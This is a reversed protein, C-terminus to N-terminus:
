DQRLEQWSVRGAAGSGNKITRDELDADDDVVYQKDDLFKSDGSLNSRIGSIHEDDQDIDEDNDTDFLRESPPHGNEIRVAMLWGDFSGDCSSGGVPVFTNFYVIDGRAWAPYLVREGSDTLDMYWGYVPNNGSYDVANTTPIRRNSNTNANSDNVSQEVLDSRTLLSDGKDWVAYFSQTNTSSKDALELFKGSGFLVMLNPENGNQNTTDTEVSPHRVVEPQTLIAQPNNSADRATFLPQPTANNGNGSRHAIRWKNMNGKLEFAWLNGYLDGAYARDAVGDGDLDVVTPTGMGNPTSTNGVGTMLKKYDANGSDTWSGDIGGDLSVIFLGSEGSGTNNYGNGFIAHWSCNGVDKGLCAITPVSHTYGLDSDDNSTFEWLVLSAANLESFQTPDTIDLAYYGRGGNGLGGLLVTKWSRANSNGMIYADSVVPPLDVYYKHQYNPDTLYHLGQDAQDSYLAAPIYALKEQGQMNFGHLMGDNAGAYVMPTRGSNSTKFAGYGAHPWDLEPAGVYLPGGHIIDGLHSERPRFNYAVNSNREPDNADSGRLYDIRAVAIAQTDEGYRLDALASASLEQNSYRFAVGNGSTENYTIVVRAAYDFSNADLATSARWNVGGVSGDTNDLDWALLDGTWLGSTYETTFALTDARLYQSSFSVGGASGTKQTISATADLIRDKLTESTEAFFYKGGGKTAASYMLTSEAVSEDAFGVVYTRMSHKLQTLDPRLDVEYMAATVDDFIEGGNLYDDLYNSVDDDVSPEGDTIVVLNNTRCWLDVPATTPMPAATYSHAFVNSKNVDIQNGQGEHLRLQGSYGKSFYHGIDRVSEGLPTGGWPSASSVGARLSTIHATTMDDVPVLINAGDYRDENRCVFRGCVKERRNYFVALGVRTETLDDLVSDIVDKATDMRSDGYSWNLCRWRRFLIGKWGWQNCVKTKTDMSKSNDLLFMINPKADAGSELPHDSLALPAAHTTQTFIFLILLGFLMGKHKPYLTLNKM